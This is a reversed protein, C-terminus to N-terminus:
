SDDVDVLILLVRDIHDVVEQTIWLYHTPEAQIGFIRQRSLCRPIRSSVRAALVRNGREVFGDALYRAMRNGRQRIARVRLKAQAESVLDALAADVYVIAMPGADEEQREVLVGLAARVEEPM